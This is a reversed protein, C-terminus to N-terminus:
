HVRWITVIVCGDDAYVSLQIPFSYNNVFKFDTHPYSVTADMGAPLYSVELAHPSRATVRLNPNLRVAAYITSSVQCVGGVYDQGYQGHSIVTALKYGQERGRPGTVANYSFEQGPYIITGDLISSVLQINFKRNEPSDFYITRYAALLDSDDGVAFINTFNSIELKYINTKSPFYAYGDIVDYIPIDGVFYRSSGGTVCRAKIREPLTGYYHINLSAMNNSRMDSTSYVRNVDFYDCYQDAVACGLLCVSLSLIMITVLVKWAKVTKEEKETVVTVNNNPKVVHIIIDYKVYDTLKPSM